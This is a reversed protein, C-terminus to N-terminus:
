RASVEMMAQVNLASIPDVQCLRQFVAQRITDEARGQSSHLHMALLEAIMSSDEWHELRREEVVALLREVIAYATTLQGASLLLRAFEVRRVFSGRGSRLASQDELLLQAAAKLDGSRAVESAQEYLQNPDSLAAARLVPPEEVINVEHRDPASAMVESDMWGETERSAAPTGDEFMATRSLPYNGVLARVLDLSTQELERAGIAAAAMNLYRYADLWPTDSPRAIAHIALKLLTEFDGADAARKLALRVESSPAASADAVLHRRTQELALSLFLSSVGDRDQQLVFELCAELTQELGPWSDIEGASIIPEDVHRDAEEELASNVILQPAVDDTNSSAYFEVVADSMTPVPKTRAIQDHVNLVDDLASRVDVFSPGEEGYHEDCFSALEELAQRGQLLAERADSCFEPTTAAIAAEVEDPALYDPDEFSVSGARLRHFHSYSIGNGTVPLAHVLGAYKQMAWQLPAARLYPDDEEFEPHLSPWFLEQLKLLLRFIPEVANYEYLHLAAEGLWVAFWLDKSQNALAGATLSEVLAYDARRAQRTWQGMPLTDDEVLSADRIQDTIAAYRLDPGSPEELSIPELLQELILM